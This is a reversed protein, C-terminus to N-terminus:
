VELYDLSILSHFKCWELLLLKGDVSAKVGLSRSISENPYKSNNTYVTITSKRPFSFGKVGVNSCYVKNLHLSIILTLSKILMFSCYIGFFLGVLVQGISEIPMVLFFVCGILLFAYFILQLVTVLALKGKKIM